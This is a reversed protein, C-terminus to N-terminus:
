FYKLLKKFKNDKQSKEDIKKFELCITWITTLFIKLENVNNYDDLKEEIDKAKISIKRPVNDESSLCYTLKLKKSLSIELVNSNIFNFNEDNPEFDELKIKLEKLFEEPINKM